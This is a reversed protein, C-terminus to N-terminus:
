KKVDTAPATVKKEPVAPVTFTFTNGDFQANEPLKLEKRADTLVAAYSKQHEAYQTQMQGLYEKLQSQAKEAQLQYNSLKTQELDIKDKLVGTVPVSTTPAPAASKTQAVLTFPTALIVLLALNRLKM